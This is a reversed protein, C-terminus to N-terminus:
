GTEYNKKKRNWHGNQGRKKASCQMSFFLHLRKKTENEKMRSSIKTFLIEKKTKENV